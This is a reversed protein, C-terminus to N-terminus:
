SMVKVFVTQWIFIHNLENLQMSNWPETTTNYEENDQLEFGILYIFVYHQIIKKRQPAPIRSFWQPLM